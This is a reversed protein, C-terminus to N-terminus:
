YSIEVRVRVGRGKEVWVGPRGRGNGRLDREGWGKVHWWIMSYIFIDTPKVPFHM